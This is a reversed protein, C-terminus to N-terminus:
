RFKLEDEWFVRPRTWGKPTASYAKQGDVDLRPQRGHVQVGRGLMSRPLDNQVDYIVTATKGASRFVSKKKGTGFM